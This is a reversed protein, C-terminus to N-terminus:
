EDEEDNSYVCKGDIVIECCNSYIANRTRLTAYNLHSNYIDEDPLEVEYYKASIGKYRYKTKAHVCDGFPIYHKDKKGSNYGECDLDSAMQTICLVCFNDSFCPMDCYHEACKIQILAM